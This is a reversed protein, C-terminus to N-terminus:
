EVCIYPEMKAFSGEKIGSIQMIDEVKEFRGNEERYRLIAEAKTQGVGPITMLETVTASNLNVKGSSGESDSSLGGSGSAKASDTNEDVVEGIAPIRVMQGDSIYQALNLVNRDAQENMGGAAEVADMMRPTGTLTYVGPNNVAGCVYVVLEDQIGDAADQVADSAAKEAPAESATADQKDKQGSGEELASLDLRGVTESTGAEETTRAKTVEIGDSTKSACGTASCCLLVLCVRTIVYSQLRKKDKM